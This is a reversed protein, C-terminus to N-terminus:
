VPSVSSIFGGCRPLLLIILLVLVALGIGGATLLKAKKQNKEM